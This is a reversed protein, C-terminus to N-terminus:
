HVRLHRPRRSPMSIPPTEIQRVDNPQVVQERSHEDENTRPGEQKGMELEWEGCELVGVRGDNGNRGEENAKADVANSM